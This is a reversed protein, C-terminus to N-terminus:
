LWRYYGEVTLGYRPLDCLRHLCTQGANRVAHLVYPLGGIDCYVGVHQLRARAIMLVADGDRPTEVKEAYDAKLADIQGSLGRLGVARDGPLSIDRRFVQRQVREALAACDAQAYPLGVFQESWHNTM